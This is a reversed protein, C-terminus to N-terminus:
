PDLAGEREMRDHCIQIGERLSQEMSRSCRRRGSAEYVEIVYRLAADLRLASRNTASDPIKKEAWRIAAIITGEYKEWAPRAAFMRAIAWAVISGLATLVIPSNAIEVVAAWVDSESIVPTM